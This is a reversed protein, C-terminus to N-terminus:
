GKDGIMVGGSQRKGETRENKIQGLRGRCREKIERTKGIQKEKKKRRGEKEQTQNRDREAEWGNKEEGMEMESVM